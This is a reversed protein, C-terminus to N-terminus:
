AGVKVKSSGTASTGALWSTLATKLALGGDNPVPTWGSIATKLANLRADVLDARAVASDAGALDIEAAKITVQAGGDKGLTM